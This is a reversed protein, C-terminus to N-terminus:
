WWVVVVVVVVVMVVVVGTMMVMHVCALHGRVTDDGCGPREVKIVDAGHDGFLQTCQAARLSPHIRSVSSSPVPAAHVVSRAHSVAPGALVRSMDLVRVGDLARASSLRRFGCSVAKQARVAACGRSWSSSSSCVLLIESSMSAIM